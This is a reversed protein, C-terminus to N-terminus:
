FSSCMIIKASFAQVALVVSHFFWLHNKKESWGLGVTIIDLLIDSNNEQAIVCLSVILIVNLPAELKIINAYKFHINAHMMIM